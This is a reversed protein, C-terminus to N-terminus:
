SPYTFFTFSGDFVIDDKVCHIHVVRGSDLLTIFYILCHKRMLCSYPIQCVCCFNIDIHFNLLSFNFHDAPSSQFSLLCPLFNILKTIHTPHINPLYRHHHPRWKTMQSWQTVRFLNPISLFTYKILTSVKNNITSFFDNNCLLSHCIVYYKDKVLSLWWLIGPYRLYSRLGFIGIFRRLM